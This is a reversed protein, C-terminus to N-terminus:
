GYPPGASRSAGRRVANPSQPGAGPPSPADRRPRRISWPATSPRPGPLDGAFLFSTSLCHCRVLSRGSSAVEEPHEPDDVQDLPDTLTAAFPPLTGRSSSGDVGAGALRAPASRAPASRPRAPAPAPRPTRASPAPRPTRTVVDNRCRRLPTHTTTAVIYNPPSGSAARTTARLCAPCIHSSPSGVHQALAGHDATSAGYRADHDTASVLRDRGCAPAPRLAIIEACRASIQEM